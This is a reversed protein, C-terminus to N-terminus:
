RAMYEAYAASVQAQTLPWEDGICPSKALSPLIADAWDADREGTDRRVAAGAESLRFREDESEIFGSAILKGLAGALEGRTPIAHNLADMAGVLDSLNSGQSGQPTAALVWADVWTWFALPDGNTM